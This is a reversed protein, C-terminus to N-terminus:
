LWGVWRTRCGGSRHHLDCMAPPFSASECKESGVALRAKDSL